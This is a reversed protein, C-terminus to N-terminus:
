TTGRHSSGLDTGGTAKLGAAARANVEAHAEGKRRHYGEGVPTGDRDLIVCGVPRTSGMGLASIAIARQMAAIETEHTSM